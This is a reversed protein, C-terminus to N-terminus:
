APGFPSPSSFQLAHDFLFTSSCSLTFRKTSPDSGSAQTEEGRHREGSKQFLSLAVHRDTLARDAKPFLVLQLGQPTPRTNAIKM